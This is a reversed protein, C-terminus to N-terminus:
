SGAGGEAVIPRQSVRVGVRRQIRNRTAAEPRVPDVLDSRRFLAGHGPWARRSVRIVAFTNLLRFTISQALQIAPGAAAVIM